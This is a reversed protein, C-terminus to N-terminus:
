DKVIFASPLYRGTIATCPNNITKGNFMIITSSGGDLNAANYAGNALLINQVDKLSAGISSLQRGDIILFMMVGDKTQAIATRPAIGWGGDGVIKIPVGDVILHPSFSIADRINGNLLEQTTYSGLVLKGENTIGIVNDYKDCESYIIKGDSMVLGNPIGGKTHGSSDKFGSANIGTLANNEKLIEYLKEGRKGLNKAAVLHVKSSDYIKLLYAKYYKGSVDLLEYDKDEQKDNNILNPNSNSKMVVITNESMVKDITKGSYLVTAIWQHSLTTMASTIITKKIFVIPGYLLFAIVAMLAVIIALAKIIRKNIVKSM